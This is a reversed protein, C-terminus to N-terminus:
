IYFNLFSITMETSAFCFLGLINQCLEIGNRIYTGLLGLIYTFKRDTIPMQLFDVALM